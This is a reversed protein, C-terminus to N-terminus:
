VRERQLQVSPHPSGIVQLWRGPAVAVAGSRDGRVALRRRGVALDSVAGIDQRGLDAWTEGGDLSAAVAGGAPPEFFGPFVQRGVYVHDPQAPDYALGGLRVNPANPDVDPAFGPSGGCRYALVENWTAGDDDSRVL